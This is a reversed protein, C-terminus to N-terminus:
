LLFLIFELSPPRINPKPRTATCTHISCSRKMSIQQVKTARAVYQTHVYQSLRFLIRCIIIFCAGRQSHIGISVNSASVKNEFRTTKFCFFSNWFVPHLMMAHASVLNVM